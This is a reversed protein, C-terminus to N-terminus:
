TGDALFRLYVPFTSAPFERNVVVVLSASDSAKQAIRTVKEQPVNLIM